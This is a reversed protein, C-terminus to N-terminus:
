PYDQPYLPVRTVLYSAAPDLKSWYTSEQFSIGFFFAPWGTVESYVPEKIACHVTVSNVDLPWCDRKLLDQLISIM